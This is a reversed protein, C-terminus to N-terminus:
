KKRKGGKKGKKKKKGTTAKPPDELRMNRFDSIDHCVVLANEMASMSFSERLKDGLISDTFFNLAMAGNM